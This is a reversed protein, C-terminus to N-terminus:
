AGGGIQRLGSPVPYGELFRELRPALVFIAVVAAFSLEFGADYVNYPEPGRTHEHPSTLDCKNLPIRCTPEQRRTAARQRSPYM